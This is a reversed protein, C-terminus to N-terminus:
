HLEKALVKRRLRAGLPRISKDQNEHPTLFVEIIKLHIKKSEEDNWIEYAVAPYLKRVLEFSKETDTATSFLTMDAVIGNATRRLRCHGAVHEIDEEGYFVKQATKFDVMADPPVNPDGRGGNVAEDEDSFAFNLIEIDSANFRYRM